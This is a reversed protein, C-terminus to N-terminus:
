HARCVLDMDNKKLFNAIVDPGFIYSVGRENDAWGSIDKEPDSWLLDCLLGKIIPNINGTDPVEIPRMIRHIQELNSLEPSLGGHM